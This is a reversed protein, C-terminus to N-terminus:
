VELTLIGTSTNFNNFFISKRVLISDSSSLLITNKNQYYACSEILTTGGLTACYFSTGTPSTRVITSNKIITTPRNYQLAFTETFVGGVGPENELFNCEKILLYDYIEANLFTTCNLGAGQSSINRIFDSKTIFIKAGTDRGNLQCLGGGWRSSKNEIFSCGSVEFTDSRETETFYLGGGM